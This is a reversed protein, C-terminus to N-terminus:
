CVEYSNGTAREEYVGVGHRRGNKWEGTYKDGSDYVFAHVGSRPPVTVMGPGGAGYVGDGGDIFAGAAMGNSCLLGNALYSSETQARVLVSGARAVAVAATSVVASAAQDAALSGIRNSRSNNAANGASHRGSAPRLSNSSLRHSTQWFAFNETETWLEAWRDM